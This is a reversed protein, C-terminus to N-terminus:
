CDGKKLLGFKEIEDKNDLFQSFSLADEEDHLFVTQRLTTNNKIWQSEINFIKGQIKVGKMGLVCDKLPVLLSDEKKIRKSKIPSKNFEPEEQIIVPVSEIEISQSAVRQKCMYDIGYVKLANALESLQQDMQSTDVNSEIMFYLVNQEFTYLRNA